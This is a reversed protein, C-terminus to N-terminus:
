GRSIGSALKRIRAALVPDSARLREIKDVAHMVTTHDKGGFCYGVEKLSLNLKKRLLYMAVQRALALQKTRRVSKIDSVPIGFEDATAAIVEGHDVPPTAEVLDRSAEEALDITIPRGTLGALALLRVLCGELERVSTKVRNAIYLAVDHPLEQEEVAAKQQIIAIRTELDPAQIDVVLGSGLRSVLRDELTPIERPPRDSTFVVQSGADHLHNFIYFVEEQLREKGVLYHIDDLLLLDLARYKHKFDLRSNKEIAQILELFLTEAPVYHVKLGPRTALAHNGIAQLLHTKGLGVGGYLFLPNYTGGPHEAVSRAAAAALRSHEGVIFTDFTHRAQLRSGNTGPARVPALPRRRRLSAADAADRAHFSLRYEQGTLSLLASRIEAAYHQGLWDAFFGNPVDVEFTDNKVARGRTPALWTDFGERNVRLRLLELAESWTESADNGPHPGKASASPRDSALSM